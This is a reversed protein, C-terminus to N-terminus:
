NSAQKVIKGIRVREWGKPLSQRMILNSPIVWRELDKWWVAFASSMISSTTMM